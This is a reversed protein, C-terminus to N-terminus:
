HTCSHGMSDKPDIYYVLLWSLLELLMPNSEAPGSRRCVQNTSDAIWSVALSHGIMLKGGLVVWFCTSCM